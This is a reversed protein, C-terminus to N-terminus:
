SKAQRAEPDVLMMYNSGGSAFGMKKLFRDAQRVRIGGTVHVSLSGAGSNISRRIFHRMLQFAATSNRFQPIVYFLLCRAHIMDLYTHDGATAHLLGVIQQDGDRQSEAVMGIDVTAESLIHDIVMDLREIRISSARLFSEKHADQCLRKVVSRDAEALPRIRVSGGDLKRRARSTKDQTM